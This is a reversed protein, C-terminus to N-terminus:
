AKGTIARIALRIREEYPLKRDIGPVIREGDQRSFGLALLAQLVAEDDQDLHLRGLQVDSDLKSSLELILKMAMKKGLGPIGQFYATDNARVAQTLREPSGYSVVAFATKPGIGSVGLVTSFLTLHSTTTFGYLVLADERVHLYTYLQVEAPLKMSHIEAPLYVLYGVGSSTMLLGQNQIIETVTGQIFGIM